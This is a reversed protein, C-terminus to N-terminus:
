YQHSIAVRLAAIEEYASLVLPGDGELRYTAKVFPEGVDVTIALEVQLKRNKPPDNLIQQLKLRSPPLDEHEVFSLIDGFTDHLHKIVEWKSWWRTPSYTPAPLGTKTRWLIKPSRSFMNIWVKIFEDLIPTKFKEGVHDLTHSFCGIDLVNPFVISLTRMAVSNVSARDRMAAVLLDPKIGLETSLCVILQHALEEGTLSKGLLMVRVARQQIQYQDGVFRLIIALAECVHTSGDFIVSVNKGSIEKQISAQEQQRIFPILSYINTSDSLRYVNEELLERLTDLKSLPVGAKLFTTVVKVRYVRVEEGVPHTAKDYNGLLEAINQEREEKRALRAKGREHKASKIHQSIVSKKVSIPERCANCFLKGLNRCLHEGPFERVRDSISVNSPESSASGKGEKMGKPPNSSIKRKRSLDSPAPSRLKSLFSAVETSSQDNDMSSSATADSRESNPEVPGTAM